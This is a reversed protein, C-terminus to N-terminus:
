AQYDWIEADVAEFRQALDCLRTTTACVRAFDQRGDRFTLLIILM